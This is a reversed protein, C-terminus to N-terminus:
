NLVLEQTLFLNRMIGWSRHLRNKVTNYQLVMIDAAESMSKEEMLVLRIVESYKDDLAAVVMHATQLEERLILEDLASPSPDAFQNEMSEGDENAPQAHYSVVMKRLKGQPSRLKSLFLNTMIRLMWARFSKSDDYKNINLWVSVLTDQALDEAESWDKTLRYADKVLSAQDERLKVTFLRENKTEGMAPM